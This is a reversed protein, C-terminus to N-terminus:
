DSVRKIDIVSLEAPNFVRVHITHTGLGCSVIMKHGDREYEGGSYKPFSFLRPSIFGGILPLRMIGGHVHGSVTLDAGWGAYSEFYEPNHAILLQFRDADAHGVYDNMVDVTMRSQEFRRYYIRDVTVAAIDIGADDLVIRENDMMHVGIQDLRSVYDDWMSGYTKPYIKLRYEHNGLGYYLPYRESLDRILEYAHDNKHGSLGNLIDGAALIADPHLEDIADILKKNHDGYDKDHLDALLVFRTDKRIKPSTVTYERIVFRHTDIICSILCILACIIVISLIIKM